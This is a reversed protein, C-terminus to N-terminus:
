RLYLWLVASAYGVPPLWIFIKYFINNNLKNKKIRIKIYKYELFLLIFFIPLIYKLNLGVFVVFFVTTIYNETANVLNVTHEIFFVLFPILFIISLILFSVRYPLDNWLFNFIKSLIKM